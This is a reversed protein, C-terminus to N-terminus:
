AWKPGNRDMKEEVESLAAFHLRKTQSLGYNLEGAIKEWTHGCVYRQVLLTQLTPNSVSAIAANIEALRDVESQMKEEWELVRMIADENKRINRTTSHPMNSHTTTICEAASRLCELQTAMTSLRLKIQRIQSLYQKATM